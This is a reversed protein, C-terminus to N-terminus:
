NRTEPRTHVDNFAETDATIVAHYRQGDASLARELGRQLEATKGALDFPVVLDFIVNTHGTGRVVRFDHISLRADQETLYSLVRDRLASREADDTVIPDCHLVLDVHLKTRVDREIDDLLEHADLINMRYDVEAHASAFRRGPGYDHVMLDHIGLIGGYGTIESAIAHVLSEDPAAGLLPDITDKAISIGSWLIFLAVLLGVYGDLRLGTAAALVACLLVAATTIVDNRSDAATAMLAPSSIKKGLTRNFRALWLKVLISALLVLITAATCEVDAPHLIKGISTKVLEAGILLIMAAVALGALYEIRHHGFPHGADAPKAALRFGILTVISSSADSLNNVADATIAVSGTLTGLLFKGVFLLVNCVVGVIGALRGYAERVAPDETNQAGRVLRRVLFETM